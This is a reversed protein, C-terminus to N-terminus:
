TNLKYNGLLLYIFVPIGLMATVVGPPIGIEPFFLTTLLEATLTVLGGLFACILFVHEGKIKLLRAFYPVLLGVFGIPGCVAVVVSTLVVIVFVSVFRIKSIDGGLEEIRRLGIHLKFLTKRQFQVWALILFIVVLSVTFQTLSAKSYSGMFWFSMDRILQNDASLYMLLSIIASSLFNLSLGILILSSSTESKKRILGSFVLLASLGAGILAYLQPLFVVGLFVPFGFFLALNVAVGAGGSVGLIFPEALPNNMLLQCFYGALALGVGALFAMGYHPLRIQTFIYFDKSDNFVDLPKPLLFTGTVLVM